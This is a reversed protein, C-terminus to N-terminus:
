KRIRRKQKKEIRIRKVQMDSVLLKIGDAVKEISTALVALPELIKNAVDHRNKEFETMMEARTWVHEKITASYGKIETSLIKVEQPLEALQKIAALLMSGNNGNTPRLLPVLYKLMIIFIALTLIAGGVIGGTKILEVMQQSM